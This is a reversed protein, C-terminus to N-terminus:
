RMVPPSSVWRKKPAALGKLTYIADVCAEAVFRDARATSLAENSWFLLLAFLKAKQEDTLNERTFSPAGERVRRM